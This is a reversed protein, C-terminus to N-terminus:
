AHTPPTHPSQALLPWHVDGFTQTEPLQWAHVAAEWHAAPWAQMAPTHPAHEVPASQGAPWPQVAPTQPAHVDVVCHGVPCVHPLPTQPEPHEVVASQRLPSAHMESWHAGQVALECHVDGFTHTAPVQWAHLAFVSQAAPWTQVAPTQPAHV